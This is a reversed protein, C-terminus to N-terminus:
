TERRQYAGSLYERLITEDVKSKLIRSVIMGAVDVQFTMRRSLFFRVFSHRSQPLLLFFIFNQPLDWLMLGNEEEEVQCILFESCNM